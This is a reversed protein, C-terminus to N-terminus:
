PSRPDRLRRRREAWTLAPLLLLFAIGAAVVFGAPPIVVRALTALLLYAVIIVVDIAITIIYLISGACGVEGWLWTTTVFGIDEPDPAHRSMYLGTGIWVLAGALIMAGFAAGGAGGWRLIMRKGGYGVALGVALSVTVVVALVPAMTALAKADEGEVSPARGHALGFGLYALVAAAYAGAMLYPLARLAVPRRPPEGSM